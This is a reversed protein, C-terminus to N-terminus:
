MGGTKVQEEPKRFFNGVTRQARSGKDAKKAWEKLKDKNAVIWDYINQEAETRSLSSTGAGIGLVM